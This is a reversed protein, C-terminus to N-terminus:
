KKNKSLQLEVIIKIKEGVLNHYNEFLQSLFIDNSNNKDNGRLFYGQFNSWCLRGEAIIPYIHIRNKDKKELISKNQPKLQCIKGSLNKKIDNTISIAISEAIEPLKNYLRKDKINLDNLEAYLEKLIIQKIIV